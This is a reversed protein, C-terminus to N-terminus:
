KDQLSTNLKEWEEDNIVPSYHDYGGGSLAIIAQARKKSDPHSSFWELEKPTGAHMKAIKLLFNSFGKPNIRASLLCNVAFEDAESEQQREFASSSLMKIIRATVQTNGNSALSAIVAIGLEGVLRKMVHKLQMHGIEHAMVGCLETVSDCQTILGSYIILHNGPLAFANVDSSEVIHIHIDNHDIGNSECIGNCIKDLVVKADENDIIHNTKDITKMVLDGIKKETKESITNLKFIRVYDIKSLAFWAVFFGIVLAFFQLIIKGM